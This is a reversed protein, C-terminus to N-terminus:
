PVLNYEEISYKICHGSVIMKDHSFLPRKQLLGTLIGLVDAYKVCTSYKALM